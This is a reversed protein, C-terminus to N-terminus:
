KSIYNLFEDKTGNFQFEEALTNANEKDTLINLAYKMFELKERDHTFLESIKKIQLSSLCVDILLKKSIKLKENEYAEDKIKNFVNEFKTDNVPVKCQLNKQKIINEQEKLFSIFSEKVVPFKFVPLLLAINEKDTVHIYAKKSAIFKDIDISIQEILQKIQSVTYCNFEIIQLLYRYKAEDDNAKIFLNLAYKIEKDSLNNKCTSTENDYNNYFVPKNNKAQYLIGYISNDILPIVEKPAKPVLPIEPGSTDSVSKFQLDLKNENEILAYTFEKNLFKSKDSLLISDKFILDKNGKPMKIEILNWGTKIDFVKIDADAKKNISDHNVMLYFPNGSASFIVLSNRQSIASFGIFLFYLLVKNKQFM